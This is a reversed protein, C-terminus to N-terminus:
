AWKKTVNLHDLQDAIFRHPPFKSTRAAKLAEFARGQAGRPPRVGARRSMYPMSLWYPNEAEITEIHRILSKHGLHTFVSQRCTLLSLCHLSFTFT